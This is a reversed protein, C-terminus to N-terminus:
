ILFVKNLKQSNWIYNVYRLIGSKLLREMQNAKRKQCQEAREGLQYPEKRCLYFKQFGEEDRAEIRTRARELIDDIFPKLEEPFEATQSVQQQAPPPPASPAGGM